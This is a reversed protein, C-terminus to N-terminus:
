CTNCTSIIYKQQITYSLSYDWLHCMFILAPMNSRIWRCKGRKTNWHMRLLATPLSPLSFTLSSEKELHMKPRLPTEKLQQNWAWLERAGLPRQHATRGGEKHTTCALLKTVLLGTVEQPSVSGRHKSYNSHTIPYKQLQEPPATPWPHLIRWCLLPVM